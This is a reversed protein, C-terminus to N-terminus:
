AQAVPQSEAPLGKKRSTKGTVRAEPKGRNAQAKERAEAAEQAKDTEYALDEKAWERAETLLRIEADICSCDLKGGFINGDEGRLVKAGVFPLLPSGEVLDKYRGAKFSYQPVRHDTKNIVVAVGTEECLLEKAFRWTPKFGGGQSQNSNM